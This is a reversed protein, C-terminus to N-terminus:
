NADSANQWHNSVDDVSCSMMLPKEDIYSLANSTCSICGYNSYVNQKVHLTKMAFYGTKYDLELLIITYSHNHWAPNLSFLGRWSAYSFNGLLFKLIKLPAEFMEIHDYVANRLSSLPPSGLLYGFVIAIGRQSSVVLKYFITRLATRSTYKSDSAAALCCIKIKSFSLLATHEPNLPLFHFCELSNPINYSFAYM